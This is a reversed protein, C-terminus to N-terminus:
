WSDASTPDNLIGITTLIELIGVIIGEVATSQGIDIVGILLLIALVQTALTSWLVPSKFRNRKTM